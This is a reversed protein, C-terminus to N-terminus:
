AKKGHRDVRRKRRAEQITRFHNSWFVFTAQQVLERVKGELFELKV